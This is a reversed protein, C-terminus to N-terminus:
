KGSGHAWTPQPLLLRQKTDTLYRKAFINKIRNYAPARDHDSVRRGVLYEMYEGASLSQLGARFQEQTMRTARSLGKGAGGIVIRRYLWACLIMNLSGWLTRYETDRRWASFCLNLFQMLKITEEHDLQGAVIVAGFGGFSPVDRSSAM